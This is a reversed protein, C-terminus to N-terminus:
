DSYRRLISDWEAYLQDNDMKAYDARTRKRQPADKTTSPVAKAGKSKKIDKVTKEVAKNRAVEFNQAKYATLLSGAGSEIAFRVLENKDPNPLGEARAWAQVDAFEGDVRMQAQLGDVTQRLEAITRDPTRDPSTMYNEIARVLGPDQYIEERLKMVPELEQRLREAERKEALAEERTQTYQEWTKKVANPDKDKVWSWPDDDDTDDTDTEDVEVDDDTDVEYDLTQDNIVDSLDPEDPLYDNLDYDLEFDDSM